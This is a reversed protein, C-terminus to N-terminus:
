PSSSLDGRSSRSRPSRRARARRRRARAVAVIFAGAALAWFVLLLLAGVSLATAWGGSDAGQVTRALVDATTGDLPAEWVLRDGDATGTTEEVEGPLAARLAVSMSEAPTAGAAALEDAYPSGGVAALLDADVFSEFGAPLTLQGSLVNTATDEVTSREFRVGSFPPGLSALLNTAEAASTVPHRLTVTLGGDDTPAPGEVVWGAATADDFRLDDALGPAQAVVDADAVAM